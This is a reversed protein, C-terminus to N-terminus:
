RTPQTEFLRTFARNLHEHGPALSAIEVPRKMM